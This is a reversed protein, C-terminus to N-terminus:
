KFLSLVIKGVFAYYKPRRISEFLEGAEEGGGWGVVM